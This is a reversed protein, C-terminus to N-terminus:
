FDREERTSDAVKEKKKQCHYSVSGVHRDKWGQFKYEAGQGRPPQQTVIALANLARGDHNLKGTM